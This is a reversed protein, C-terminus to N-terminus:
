NAASSGPTKWRPTNNSRQSTPQALDPTCPQTPSSRQWAHPSRMRISPWAIIPVARMSACSCSRRSPRQQSYDRSILAHVQTWFEWDEGYAIDILFAGARELADARILVHGGNAFLNRVM